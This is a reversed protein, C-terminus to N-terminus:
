AAKTLASNKEANKLDSEKGFPKAWALLVPTVFYDTLLATLIGAGTLLGLHIYVKAASTVYVSFNATIILSTMLIAVGTTRFTNEISTGYNGTREFELRSHNIVHITDDVALGLLMPMITITMIDLPIDFWGMLGGVAFAPTINPIMGILGTKVSGFVIMMLLAVVILALGFSILQGMSVVNQMVTFQAVSGSLGIEAHPFIAEATRKLAVLEKKAERSNYAGMEVMMRLRKYDYDVWKEAEAGGANEYLLLLQATMERTEPIKYFVSNGSNLAQNMDKIIEVVSSVKKTLKLKQAEKILQELKNLNEPDKAAGEEDFTVTLNYSYLSGVKTNAVYDIRNVYPIKLGFSKRIDFSVEFRTLGAACVLSILTFVVMITKPRDLIWRSMGALMNETRSGGKKLTEKRRNKGFSLLSPTLAVVMLFTVCVLAAATSGVWRIPKVDIFHFSLVAGMTTLATFFIPWGSEEVAFYLSEKRRGTRTFERNFFRFLHISYGIAVALGLYVPVLIMSPDIKVGLHGQLGFIIIVAGFATFMPIIVGTVTRIALALVVITAIISLLMNRGMEKAFYATKDAALVPMGAGKPNLIEYKEQNIIELATEGAVIDAGKNKENRWGEPYNKMRLIIWAQRADDSVMRNVFLEKSLAKAKMENRAEMSDPITDPVLDTIELGEDTGRTFECDTISLIEDSFPVKEKLENGLERIRSLIDPRFIDESEVLVAVFDNNGFIEKFEDEAVKMPDNDLFWSDWSVDFQIKGMGTFSFGILLIFAIICLWRLRVIGKATDRFFTNIKMLNLM